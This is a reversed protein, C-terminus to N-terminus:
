VKPRFNAEQEMDDAIKSLEEQKVLGKGVAERLIDETRVAEIGRAACERVLAREDTLLAWGRRQALALGVKDAASFKPPLGQVTRLEEDTLDDFVEIRGDAIAELASHLKPLRGVGRRLETEVLRSVVLAKGYLSELMGHRGILAFNSCVCTDILRRRM